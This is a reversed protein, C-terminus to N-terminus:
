GAALVPHITLYTEAVHYLIRNPLPTMTKSITTKLAAVCIETPVNEVGHGSHIASFGSDYDVV